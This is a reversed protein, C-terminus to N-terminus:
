FLIMLRSPTVVLSPIFGVVYCHTCCCFLFVTPLLGLAMLHTVFPRIVTPLIFQQAPPLDDPPNYQGKSCCKAPHFLSHCWPTGITSHEVRACSGPNQLRERYGENVDLSAAGEECEHQCYSYKAATECESRGCTYVPAQFGKHCFILFHTGQLCTM